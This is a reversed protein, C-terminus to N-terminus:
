PKNSRKTPPKHALKEPATRRTVGALIRSAEDLPIHETDSIRKAVAAFGPHSHDRKM